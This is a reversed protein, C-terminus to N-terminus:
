KKNLADLWTGKMFVPPATRLYVPQEVKTIGDRSSSRMPANQMSYTFQFRGAYDFAVFTEYDYTWSSGESEKMVFKYIAERSPANFPTDNYQMMSKKTPRYAGFDYLYSGEYVGIQEDAYRNDSIFKAWKIELPNSRWDVNAGWSKTTWLDDLEVKNEEPLSIGSYEVYEDFLKGFGHGGAEHNLVNSVGDMSYCVFSNDEFLNCYSRGGTDDKYIVCVHMPNNPILNPVKSAYEFAKGADEDIAHIADGYFEGNPSIAKVAYVNFRDQLSSFPEYSFFQNLANEMQCKFEGDDALDKDTYGEGVFVIDVGRGTTATQLTIVEGDHSYDTSTYFDYEIKGIKDELYPFLRQTRDYTLPLHGDEDMLNNFVMNGNEDVLLLTLNIYGFLDLYYNWDDYLINNWPIQHEKIYSSLIEKEENSSCYGGHLGIVEFGKDKLSNYASSLNNNFSEMWTRSTDWRYLLTYKNKKYIAALDIDNGNMDKTKLEPAPITLDSLDLGEGRQFLFAPWCLAFRPHNRIGEPVKGTFFNDNLHFNSGPLREMLRIIFAEPLRGEYCNYSLNLYWLNPIEAISLPIEGSLKNGYLDIESLSYINGLYDPLTGDLMFNAMMLREVPGMQLFSKPLSGSSYDWKGFFFDQLEISHVWPWEEEHIGGITNVGYWDNIPKDSCWNDNSPWNDGNLAQYFEILAQRVVLDDYEKSRFEISEVGSINISDRGQLLWVAKGDIISPKLSYDSNALDWQISDGISQKISVHQGDYNKQALAIIPLLAFLVVFFLTRKRM